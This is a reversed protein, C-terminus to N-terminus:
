LFINFLDCCSAQCHRLFCMSNTATLNWSIAFRLHSRPSFIPFVCSFAVDFCLFASYLRVVVSIAIGPVKKYLKKKITKNKMNEMERKLEYM